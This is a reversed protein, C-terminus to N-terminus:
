RALFLRRNGDTNRTPPCLSKCRADRAERVGNLIGCAQAVVLWVAAIAVFSIALTELVWEM